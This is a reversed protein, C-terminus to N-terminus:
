YATGIQTNRDLELDSMKLLWDDNGAPCSTYSAGEFSYIQKGELHMVDASGRVKSDRLSFSPQSMEGTNKDLNIKFSPGTM